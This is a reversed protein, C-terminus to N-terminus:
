AGAEYGVAVKGALNLATVTGGGDSEAPEGDLATMTVQRAHGPEVSFADDSAAFGPIRVRVGYAFRRSSVTVVPDAGNVAVTASLGLLDSSERALPRGAPMRFSQSLVQRQETARELSVVILNQAPPGFRYTWGADVFRGILTEVNNTWAGHPELLVDTSAEVVRLEFDRYLAVRVRAALLEPRDNAAHVAVGGLGEDTTWVAVPALARRLHHFAVKPRGRHDLIGWGAGPRRDGLWLVLGGGCPSDARRWEGFVDAMLEGSLARSLELYREHDSYRLALPDVGFLERLYHDRVDEFDWGAGADRPVGAKWEARDVSLGDALASLAEDDPVNSLALCESAFRVGARRADDLPRLYAGVGFYNAVGSDCRFPLEGGCPASPVYVAAIDAREVARPLLAGFLPGDALAPDLGLMAVQQSVESNGCLVALSPRGGLADLVLEAERGVGALFTPDAEPYDLNAFMFDQWLLIGLEDLRDYFATSEYCATGPIRLMNMGGDVVATLTRDLDAACSWPLAPDPPTWVAGRAFVAVGNICLRLEEVDGSLTRFGVRGAGFSAGGAFLRLDYLAPEGHTHPWWLEVNPVTVEGAAEGNGSLEARWSQGDRSLEATVPGPAAVGLGRVSARVSLVGAGDQVRPRVTLRDIVAERDRELRIPRWPGAIAPGPACGPARGLLMTRFFRLNGDAVLRTRWRARPKRREALLPSLARCCIALENADGILEGVDLAHAAFMSDSDLVREGNLYVEAVTALGDLALTLQEGPAAPAASFRTRFWWDRGDIDVPEGLRWRGGARLSSAATAPVSTAAWDLGDLAAADVCAGPATAAFQWGDSLGLLEARDSHVRRATV